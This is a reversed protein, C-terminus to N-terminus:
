AQCLVLEFGASELMQQFSELTREKGGTIAMMLLDMCNAYPTNPQLVVEVILLRSDDSMARRCNQLITACQADDRDHLVSKLLYLSKGAPVSEFFNGAILECHTSEIPPHGERLSTIVEPLEFISGQLSPYQQLVAQMFQGYGGGVDCLISAISFTAFATCDISLM